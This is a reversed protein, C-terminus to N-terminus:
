AHPVHVIDLLISAAVPSGWGGPAPGFDKTREGTAVDRVPSTELDIQPREHRSVDLGLEGASNFDPAVEFGCDGNGWDKSGETDGGCAATDM